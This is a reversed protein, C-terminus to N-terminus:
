SEETTNKKRGVDHLIGIIIKKIWNIWHKIKGVFITAGAM